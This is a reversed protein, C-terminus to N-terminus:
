EKESTVDELFISFRGILSPKTFLEKLCPADMRLFPRVGPYAATVFSLARNLMRGYYM